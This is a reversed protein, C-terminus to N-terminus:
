IKKLTNVENNSLFLRERALLEWLVIGLSFIDTRYDVEMGEAQEPSMYGFKGKLTGARTTELKSEAKAIGFDVIKIEGEFSLMVNQPSVDRHTINLPKGTTPDVHRHAHDLGAATEKILYVIDEIGFYIDTKNLRNLVQRLNRGEVYEMVIFFQGREEGFEFISVINGHSINMAIKAEEKFMEVFEQNQSFQPLIRKVALLKSVNEAGLSKALYVEAMGGTALKDLLIYKGFYEPQISM